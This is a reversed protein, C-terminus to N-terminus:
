WISVRWQPRARAVRGCSIPRSVGCEITSSSTKTCVEVARGLLWASPRIRFFQVFTKRSGCTAIWSSDISPHRADDDATNRWPPAPVRGFFFTEPITSCREARHRPPPWAFLVFANYFSRAVVHPAVNVPVHVAVVFLRAIAHM